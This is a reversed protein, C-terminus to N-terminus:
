FRGVAALSGPGVVLSAAPASDARPHVLLLTVGAAAGVGAVIFGITSITGVSHYSDLEGQQAPGCSGSCSKSLDSHKGVAILGAVVGVGLGAAGVGFSVWPWPSVGGSSSAAPSATPGVAAPATAEPAVTQSADKELVIAGEASGGAPVNVHIEAARYGDATARVLHDGPDVLRRIGLSATNLPTDDVTVKASAVAGGAADKVTITVGGIRPEVDKVEKKADELAQKFPAPANAAVGERVIRNYAEQAELVKGQGALSRALGLMLTPAHVLSDARRFEDEAKAYDKTALAREADQGLARATARDGDAQALAVGPLATAVMLAFVGLRRPASLM